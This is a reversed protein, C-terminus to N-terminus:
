DLKNRAGLSSHYVGWNTSANDLDKGIIFDPKQTLGHAIRMIDGSGSVATQVTISFGQKTGVSAGTAAITPVSPPTIDSDCLIKGDVEIGYLRYDNNSGSPNSWTLTTLSTTGINFWGGVSGTGMVAGIDSKVSSGNVTIDASGTYTGSSQDLNIRISTNATIGGSPTFTLTNGDTAMEYGTLTGNFMNTYVGSNSTGSMSDSWVASQNFIECTLAGVSMNVDSASAYGVDDVNFTNSSGGAKWCWAVIAEGDANLNYQNGVTFGDSNYSFLNAGPDGEANTNDSNLWYRPGRVTDLWIHNASVNVM